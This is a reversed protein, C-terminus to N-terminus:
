SGSPSRISFSLNEVTERKRSRERSEMRTINRPNRSKIMNTEIELTILTNQHNNRQELMNKTILSDDLSNRNMLKKSIGVTLLIKKM